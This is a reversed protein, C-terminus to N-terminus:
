KKPEKQPATELQQGSMTGPLLGTVTVELQEATLQEM